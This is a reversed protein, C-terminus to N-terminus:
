KENFAKVVTYFLVGFCAGGVFESIPTFIGCLLLALTPIAFKHTAVKKAIELFKKM